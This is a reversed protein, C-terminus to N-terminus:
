IQKLHYPLFLACLIEYDGFSITTWPSMTSEPSITMRMVVMMAIVRMRISSFNRTSACCTESVKEVINCWIWCGRREYIASVRKSAILDWGYCVQLCKRDKVLFQDILVLPLENLDVFSKNVDNAIFGPLLITAAITWGAQKTHTQYKRQEEHAALPPFLNDIRLVFDINFSVSWYCIKEVISGVM